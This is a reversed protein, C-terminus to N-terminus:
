RVKVQVWIESNSNRPDNNEIIVGRRVTQGSVDHFGADFTLTMVSVMGPPIVASTFDAITCGCTTYARSITLPADGINAIRFERNVIDTPGLTGFDYYQEEVAIRPQPGDKPLFPIPPGAGMEHVAQIPLENSVEAGDFDFTGASSNVRNWILLAVSLLLLVGGAILITAIVQRQRAKRKRVTRRHEKKSIAQTTMGAREKKDM